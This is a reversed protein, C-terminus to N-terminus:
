QKMISLYIVLCAALLLMSWGVGETGFFCTMRPNLTEWFALQKVGNLIHMHMCCDIPALYPEYIPALSTM